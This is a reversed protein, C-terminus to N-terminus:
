SPLAMRKLVSVQREGNEELFEKTSPSLVLVLVVKWCMSHLIHVTADICEIRFGSHSGLTRAAATILTVADKRQLLYNGLDRM